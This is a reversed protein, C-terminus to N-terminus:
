RIFRAPTIKKMCNFADYQDTVLGDLGALNNYLYVMNGRGNKKIENIELQYYIYFDVGQSKWQKGFLYFEDQMYAKPFIYGDKKVAKYVGMATRVASNSSTDITFYEYYKEPNPEKTYSPNSEKILLCELHIENNEAHASRSLVLIFLITLVAKKM